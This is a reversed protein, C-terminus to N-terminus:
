EFSRIRITRIGAAHAAQVGKDSDEFALTEDVSVGSKKLALLYAEPHPKMNTVDDGFIKYTFYKGLNHQKLVAEANQQKATTVLATINHAAMQELFTSLFENLESLHLFSPYLEKKRNNIKAIDDKSTNPLLASLFDNSSEGAKIREFLERGLDIGVADLVAARYAGYNSEHTNVLTGDLDFFFATITKM